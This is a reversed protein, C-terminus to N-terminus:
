PSKFFQLQPLVRQANVLTANAIDSASVDRLAAMVSGIRPLQAPENRAQSPLAQSLQRESQTKYIWHPPIDPADTELVVASLPLDTAL